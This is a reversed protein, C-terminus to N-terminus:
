RAPAATSHSGQCRHQERLRRAETRFREMGARDLTTEVIGLAHGCGYCLVTRRQVVGM